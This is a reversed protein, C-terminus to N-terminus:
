KEKKQWTRKGPVLIMWKKWSTHYWMGKCTPHDDCAKKADKESYKKYGKFNYEANRIKGEKYQVPKKCTISNGWKGTQKEVKSDKYSNLGCMRRGKDNYEFSGCKPNNDCASKCKTLSSWKMCGAIGCGPVDDAVEGLQTYDGPCGELAIKDEATPKEYCRPWTSEMDFSLYYGGGKKCKGGPACRCLNWKIPNRDKYVTNKKNVPSPYKSTMWGSLKMWNRRSKGKPTNPFQQECKLNKMEHPNVWEVYRGLNKIWSRAKVLVKFTGGNDPLTCEVVQTMETYKTYKCYKCKPPGEADAIETFNGETGANPMSKIQLMELAPAEDVEDTWLKTEKCAIGECTKKTLWPV